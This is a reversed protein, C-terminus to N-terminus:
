TPFVTFGVEKAVESLKNDCCIFIKGKSKEFCWVLASALQLSDLTRLNKTKILNEAIDRLKETPLIERWTEKQIELRKTAQAYAAASIENKWGLRMLASQAEISSAWWAVIEYKRRVQRM